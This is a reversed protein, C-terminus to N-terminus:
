VPMNRDPGVADAGTMQIELEERLRQVVMQTERDAGGTFAEKVALLLDATNPYDGLVVDADPMEIGHEEELHAAMQDVVAKADEGEAVYDCDAIGLDAGRVEIM